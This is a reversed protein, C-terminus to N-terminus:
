PIAGSRVKFLDETGFEDPQYSTRRIYYKQQSLLWWYFPNGEERWQRTNYKTLTIFIEM